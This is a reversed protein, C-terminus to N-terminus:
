VGGDASPKAPSPASNEIIMGSLKLAAAFPGLETVELIEAIFSVSEGGTSFASSLRKIQDSLSNSAQQTEPSAVPVQVGIDAPPLFQLVARTPAFGPNLAAAQQYDYTAISENHQYLNADGLLYYVRWLWEAPLGNQPEQHLLVDWLLVEANQVALSAETPQKLLYEVRACDLYSKALPIDTGPVIEQPQEEKIQQLNYAATRYGELAKSLAQQNQDSPLGNNAANNEIQDAAIWQTLSDRGFVQVRPLLSMQLNKTPVNGARPGLRQFPRAFTGPPMRGVPDHTFNGGQTGSGRVGDNGSAHPFPRQGHSTPSAHSFPREAHLAPAAHEHHGTGSCGVCAMVSLFLSVSQALVRRFSINSISM